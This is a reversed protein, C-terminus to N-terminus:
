KQAFYIAAAVAVLGLGITSIGAGIRDGATTGLSNGLTHGLTHGLTKSALWAGGSGLVVLAAENRFRVSAASRQPKNSAPPAQAHMGGHAGGAPRKPAGSAPPPPLPSAM